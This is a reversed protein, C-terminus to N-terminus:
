QTEELAALLLVIEKASGHDQYARREGPFAPANNGFGLLTSHSQGWVRGCM